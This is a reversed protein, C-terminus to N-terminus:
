GPQSGSSLDDAIRRQIILRIATAILKTRHSFLDFAEQIPPDQLDIGDIEGLMRHLTARLFETQDTKGPPLRTDIISIMQVVGDRATQLDAALRDGSKHLATGNKERLAPMMDVPLTSQAGRSADLDHDEPILDQLHPDIPLGTM